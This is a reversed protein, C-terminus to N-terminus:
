LLSYLKYREHKTKSYIDYNRSISKSIGEYERELNFDRIILEIM